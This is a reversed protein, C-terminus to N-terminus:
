NQVATTAETVPSTEEVRPTFPHYDSMRQPIDGHRMNPYHHSRPCGNRREEDTKPRIISFEGNEFHQMALQQMMRYANGQHWIFENPHRRRVAEGCRIGLENNYVDMLSSDHWCAEKTGDPCDIVGNGEHILLLEMTTQQGMRSALYCSLVFHRFADSEDYETAGPCVRAVFQDAITDAERLLQMAFPHRSFFDKEQPNLVRSTGALRLLRDFIDNGSYANPRDVYDEAYSYTAFSMLGFILWLVKM